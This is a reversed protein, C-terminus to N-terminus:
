AEEPYEAGYANERLARLLAKRHPRWLAHHQRQLLSFLEETQKRTFYPSCYPSPSAPEAVAAGTSAPAAMAGPCPGATSVFTGGNILRWYRWHYGLPNGPRKRNNAVASRELGCALCRQTPTGQAPKEASPWRHKTM